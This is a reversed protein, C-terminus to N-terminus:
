GAAAPHFLSKKGSWKSPSIRQIFRPHARALPAPRLKGAMLRRSRSESLRGFFIWLEEVPAYRQRYQRRYILVASWFLIRQKQKLPNQSGAGDRM